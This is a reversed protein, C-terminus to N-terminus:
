TEAFVEICSLGLLNLCCFKAGFHKHHQFMFHRSEILMSSDNEYVDGSRATTKDLCYQLIVTIHYFIRRIAGEALFLPQITHFEADFFCNKRSASISVYCFRCENVRKEYWITVIAIYFRFEAVLPRTSKLEVSSMLCTIYVYICLAMCAYWVRLKNWRACIARQLRHM